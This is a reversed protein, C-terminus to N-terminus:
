SSLEVVLWTATGISFTCGNQQFFQTQNVSGVIESVPCGSNVNYVPGSGIYFGYHSYTGDILGQYHAPANEKLYTVFDSHSHGSPYFYEETGAIGAYAGFYSAFDNQYNYHTMQYHAVLDQFRLNAFSDLQQSETLGAEGMGQRIVSLNGFFEHAWRADVPEPQLQSALGSAFGGWSPYTAYVLYGGLILIMLIGIARVANRQGRTRRTRASRPLSPEKRSFSHREHTTQERRNQGQAKALEESLLRIRNKLAEIKSGEYSFRNSRLRRLEGQAARLASDIEEVTRARPVERRPIVPSRTGAEERARQLDPERRDSDGSHNEPEGYADALKVERAPSSSSGAPSSTPPGKAEPEGTLRHLEATLSEIASRQHESTYKSADARLHYRLDRELVDIRERLFKIRWEKEYGQEPTKQLNDRPGGEALDEPRARLPRLEYDTGAVYGGVALMKQLWDFEQWTKVTTTKGSRLDSYIAVEDDPPDL